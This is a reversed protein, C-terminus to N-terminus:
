LIYNTNSRGQNLIKSNKSEYFNLNSDFQIENLEISNM